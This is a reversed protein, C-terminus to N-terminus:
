LIPGGLLLERLAYSKRLLAQWEPGFHVPSREDARVRPYADGRPEFDHKSYSSSHVVALVRPTADLADQWEDNLDKDGVIMYSNLSHQKPAGM